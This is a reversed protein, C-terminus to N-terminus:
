KGKRGGGGGGGVGFLWDAMVRQRPYVQAHSVHYGGAEVQAHGQVELWVKVMGEGGEEEDAAGELELLFLLKQYTHVHAHTRAHTRAHTHVHM